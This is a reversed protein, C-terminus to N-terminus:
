EEGADHSLDGVATDRGALAAKWGEGTQRFEEIAAERVAVAAELGAIRQGESALKEGLESTAPGSDKASELERELAAVRQSETALRQELDARLKALRDNDDRLRETEVSAHALESRLSDDPKEVPASFAPRNDV